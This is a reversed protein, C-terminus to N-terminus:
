YGNASALAVVSVRTNPIRKLQVICAELTSGTTIVDDVLLIHKGMIQDEQAVNFVRHVNLHREYREKKTQTETYSHRIIANPLVEIGSVSGIGRALLESQNYGRYKLRKPHLPVPVIVDIDTLFGTNMLRRGFIEGMSVGLEKANRYKIYHIIKQVKEGKRFYLLSSAKEVEVKGWFLQEIPNNDQLEFKTYPLKSSCQKCLCKEKELLEGGCLLCNRPFVLQVFADRYKRILPSSLISLDM